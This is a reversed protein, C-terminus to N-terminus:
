TGELAIVRATLSVILAQQEQIAATLTAVLNSTDVGQPKIRTQENGDEDTYTEVDDKEGSVADPFIEQLEHAIFGQGDSGNFKWTYTCPKLQAVKALAGTMPAVNEKLRYDSTTVYNIGSGNGNIAGQQGAIGVFSIIGNSGAAGMSFISPGVNFTNKFVIGQQSSSPNTSFVSVTDTFFGQGEVHLKAGPATTGTGIGLNGSFPQLVLNCSAAGGAFNVGQIYQDDTTTLTGFATSYGSNSDGRLSLVAKTNSTALSNADQAATGVLALRASAAETSPSTTGIGVNGSTDIRMAVTGSKDFSAIWGTGYQSVQLGNISASANNVFIHAFNSGTLAQDTRLRFGTGATGSHNVYLASNDNNDPIAGNNKIFVTSFNAAGSDVSFKISNSTTTGVMVNGSGDIRMRETNNTAFKLSANYFNNITSSGDSNDYTLRLGETTSAGGGILLYGVGTNSISFRGLEGAAARVDLRSLPSSNNIGVNGSSDMRAKETGAIGFSISNFGDLGLSRATAPGFLTNGCGVRGGYGAEDSRQISIVSTAPAGIINLINTTTSTGIGVNGSSDIRMRETDVTKLIIQSSAAIANLIFHSNTNDYEIGVKNTGNNYINFSTYQAGANDIGLQSGNTASKVTLRQAPSTTGIGVNGSSDITQRV